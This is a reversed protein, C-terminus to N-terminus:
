KGFRNPDDYFNGFEIQITGDVAVDRNAVPDHGSFTITASALDITGITYPDDTEMVDAFVKEKWSVSFPAIWFTTTKKGTPDSPVHEELALSANEYPPADDPPLSSKFKSVTVKKIVADYPTVTPLGAGIEVYQLEVQLSDPNVQYYTEWVSDEKNFTMLFDSLDSRLARGGGISVIRLAPTPAIIQCGPALLMGAAAVAILLGFQSRRM